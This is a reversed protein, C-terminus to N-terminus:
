WIKRSAIRTESGFFNLFMAFSGHVLLCILSIVCRDTAPDITRVKPLEGPKAEDDVEGEWFKKWHCFSTNEANCNRSLVPNEGTERNLLNV